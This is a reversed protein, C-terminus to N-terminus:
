PHRGASAYVQELRPVIATDWDYRAAVARCAAATDPTGALDLAREIAAALGDATAPAASGVTDDVIETPGGGDALVVAPTGSALSEIVVMGFSEARAPLVTAWAQAYADVLEGPGALRCRTVADRAAPPAAALTASPDGPGLLWLQLAPHRRRLRATADLLLPLNKRGTDLSGAYLLAPVPSRAAAPRYDALRVGPPVVVPDRGFDRRLYGGAAESVCVYAGVHDVVYRHLSADARRGRSAAAPFGHDTFVTALGRRARGTLAAAAADATSTAHWVDARAMGLRPLSQLGFAAQDALDGFRRPALRRRPVRRVPVGLVRDHGPRRGTTLVRVDHGARVLAAALEHLYREGGRRVDPWGYVSSLAIRM